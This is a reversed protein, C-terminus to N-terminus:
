YWSSGTWTRTGGSDNWQGKFSPPFCNNLMTITIPSGGGLNGPNGPEYLGFNFVLDSRNCGVFANAGIYTVNSLNVFSLGCNQFANNEIRTVSNPITINNLNGCLSFASSPITTIGNNPLVVTTLDNCGSFISIALQNGKLTVNELGSCNEFAEQGVSTINSDIILNKPLSCGAFKRYDISHTGNEAATIKLTTGAPAVINARALESCISPSITCPVSVNLSSSCGLFAGNSITTVTSPINISALSGSLYFANIGITELGENLTVSSLNNCNSFANQGITEVTEPINISALGDCGFFARTGITVLTSPWVISSLTGLDRFADSSIETIGEPIVVDTLSSNSFNGIPMPPFTISNLSNMALENIHFAQYADYDLATLPTGDSKTLNASSLDLPKNSFDSAGNLLGSFSGASEPIEITENATYSDTDVALKDNKIVYKAQEKLTSFSIDGSFGSLSGTALVPQGDITYTYPFDVNEGNINKSEATAGLYSLPFSDSAYFYTGDSDTSYLESSSDLSTINIKYPHQLTRRDGSVVYRGPRASSEGSVYVDVSYTGDATVQATLVALLEEATNYRQGNYVYYDVDLSTGGTLVLNSAPAGFSSKKGKGGWGGTGGNRLENEPMFLSGAGGGGGGCSVCVALILFLAFCSLFKSINEKM